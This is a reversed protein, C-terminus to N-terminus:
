NLTVTQVGVLPAKVATVTLNHNGNALGKGNFVMYFERKETQNYIVNDGSLYQDETKNLYTENKRLVGRDNKVDMADRKETFNTMIHVNKDTPLWKDSIQIKM